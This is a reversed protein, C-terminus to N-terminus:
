NQASRVQWLSELKIASQTARGAGGPAQPSGIQGLIDLFDAGVRLIQGSAQGGRFEVQVRWGQSQWYRLVSALSRRQEVRGPWAPALPLYRAAAIARYPVLILIRGQRLLAWAAAVDEVVGEVLSGEGLQLQVQAGRAGALRGMLTVEGAESQAYDVAELDREFREQADLQSSLDHM